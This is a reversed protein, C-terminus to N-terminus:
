FNLRKFIFEPLFKVFYYIILSVGPYLIAKRKQTAKVISKALKRPSITLIKPTQIDKIMKTKVFGPIVTLVNINEFSLEQRLGSLFNTFASKAAGYFYNQKRGRTGAISSIAIITGENNMKKKILSIFYAPILYNSYMLQEIEMLNEECLSQPSLMGAACFVLDIGDLDKAM